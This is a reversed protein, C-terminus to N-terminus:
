QIVLCLFVMVSTWFVLSLTRIGQDEEAGCGQSHGVRSGLIVKIGLINASVRVEM